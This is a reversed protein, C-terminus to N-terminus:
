YYETSGKRTTLSPRVRVNHGGGSSATEWVLNQLHGGDGGVGGTTKNSKGAVMNQKISPPVGSHSSMVEVQDLFGEPMAELASRQVILVSTDTSPKDITGWTLTDHVFIDKPRTMDFKLFARVEAKANPPMSRYNACVDRFWM